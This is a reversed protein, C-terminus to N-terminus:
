LDPQGMNNFVERLTLPSGSIFSQVSATRKSFNLPILTYQISFWFTPRQDIEDLVSFATTISDFLHAVATTGAGSEMVTPSSGTLYALGQKSPHAGEISGFPSV